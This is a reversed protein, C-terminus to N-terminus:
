NFCVDYMDTSTWNLQATNMSSYCLKPNRNVTRCRETRYIADALTCYLTLTNWAQIRTQVNRPYIRCFHLRTYFRSFIETGSIWQLITLSGCMASSCQHAAAAVVSLLFPWSLGSDFLEQMHQTASHLTVVTSGSCLVHASCAGTRCGCTRAAVSVQGLYRLECRLFHLSPNQKRHQFPCGYSWGETWWGSSSSAKLHFFFSLPHHLHKAHAVCFSFLRRDYRTFLIIKDRVGFATNDVQQSKCAMPELCVVAGAVSPRAVLFDM